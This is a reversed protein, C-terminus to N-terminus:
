LKRAEDDYDPQAGRSMPPLPPTAAHGRALPPRLSAVNFKRRGLGSAQLDSALHRDGHSRRPTEDRRLDSRIGM